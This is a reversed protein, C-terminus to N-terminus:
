AVIASITFASHDEADHRDEICRQRQRANGAKTSVM